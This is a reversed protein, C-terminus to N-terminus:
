PKPCDIRISNSRRVVSWIRNSEDFLYNHGIRSKFRTPNNSMDSVWDQPWGVKILLLLFIKLSKVNFNWIFWRRILIFYIEFNTRMWFSQKWFFFSYQDDTDRISVILHIIRNKNLMKMQNM